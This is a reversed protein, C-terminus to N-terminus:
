QTHAASRMRTAQDLDIVADAARLVAEIDDHLRQVAERGAAPKRYSPPEFLDARPSAMALLLHNDQVLAVPAGFRGSAALAMFREMFAPTLLARATVQDSGYVEYAKEFAPDELRVVQLEGGRLREAFNGLFGRDPVVLTVGRLSRPLTVAATLGQFITRRNKGSGKILKLEVISLEMGRYQGLIEDEADAYDWEPFLRHRRFDDLRPQAPRWSLAGFGEAIRPLVREKYRRQYDGSLQYSAWFYGALGGFAMVMLLDFTDAPDGTFQSMMWLVAAGVVGLPVRWLMAANIRRLTDLRVAELERLLPALAHDDDVMAAEAQKRAPRLVLLMVLWAGGGAILLATFGGGFIGTLWGELGPTRRIAGFAIAGWATLAAIFVLALAAAGGSSGRGSL